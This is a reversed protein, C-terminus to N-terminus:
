LSLVNAPTFYPYIIFMIIFCKKMTFTCLLYISKGSDSCLDTTMQLIWLYSKAMYKIILSIKIITILKTFHSIKAENNVVEIM